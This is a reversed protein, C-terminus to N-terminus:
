RKPEMVVTEGSSRVATTTRARSTRATVSPRRRWSKATQWSSSNARTVPRGTRRSLRTIATVAATVTVTAMRM